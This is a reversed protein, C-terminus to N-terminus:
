RYATTSPVITEDTATTSPVITEDTATTSPITEDITEIQKLKKMQLLLKKLPKM